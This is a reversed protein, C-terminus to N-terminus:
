STVTEIVFALGELIKELDGNEYRMLIDYQYKGPTMSATTNASLEIQVVGNAANEYYFQFEGEASSSYLKKVQGTFTFASVDVPIGDEDFNLSTEFTTNQDIYINVRNTM